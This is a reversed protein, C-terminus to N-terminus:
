AGDELVTALMRRAVAAFSPHTTAYYPLAVAGVLLAWGRGREWTPEDVRLDRRLVARGGPGLLSWAPLLDVAPDGLGAAAWDLVGTLRGDAVLLNGPLLDAHVWTGPARAPPVVLAADWRSTLAPVDVVAGLQGLATRVAADYADLRRGRFATPGDPLGLDRLARVVAVLDQALAEDDGEAPEPPRGPVREQVSWAFPYGEGPAGVAVVRPVAVPLRGALRPLLARERALDDAGAARLPLRVVLADGLAFVANVTGAPVIEVVADAGGAGVLLDPVQGALLRVVLGADVPVEDDHLRLRPM